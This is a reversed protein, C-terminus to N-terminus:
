KTIVVKQRYSKENMQVNLYYVGASVDLSVQHNQGKPDKEEYVKQGLKDTVTVSNIDANKNWDLTFSGNNPNPYLDIDYESTHNEIGLGTVNHCNSTDVCGNQTVIVAYDGNSSPQFVSDTEGQIDSNEVCDYWKYWVFPADAEVHATLKGDDKTVNLEFSDRHITVDITMISDCGNSNPITDMYTGSSTYTEDGSPVTYSDCDSANFNSTTSGTADLNITILSDCGGSTQLTDTYTGSTSYTEDGSPVTYTSCTTASITTDASNNVTLNFTIISDCGAANPITDIYMGSSTYTEDGSPVTLSDCVTTSITTDTNNNILDITIISDCGASNPVTDTYTGSSTYTEDGSPVTYAGCTTANITSSSNGKVVVNVTILSDCGEANSITDSYSGTNAYTEDGSPVTY